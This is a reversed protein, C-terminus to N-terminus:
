TRRRQSDLGIVRCDRLVGTLFGLKNADTLTHRVCIDYALGSVLVVTIGHFKLLDELERLTHGNNDHFASYSDIFVHTGKRIFAAKQPIKLDPHIEAGWSGQVCHRPYLVQEVPPAEFLVRDFAKPEKCSTNQEIKRDSDCASEVFSIHNHPHWDQTFVMLDLACEAILANLPAIAELPKEGASGAQVSLSGSVFDNQFDVVILAIKLKKFEEFITHQLRHLDNENLQPTLPGALHSIRKYISREELPVLVDSHDDLVHNTTQQLM